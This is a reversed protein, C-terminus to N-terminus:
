EEEDVLLDPRRQRTRAEARERRFEEIRAHHGGLLVDPVEMGRFVRPRTYHPYELGGRAFSEERLSDENGLVGPLLRWVADLVVLAAPEGGSLVFDGVSIERDIWGRRVREDIGEYRGCVLIMGPLESLEHALSQDFREGQPTMLIRPTGEPAAEVAAEIAGVLPGPKMVM